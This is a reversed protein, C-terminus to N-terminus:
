VAQLGDLIVSMKQLGEPWGQLAFACAEDMSLTNCFAVSGTESEREGWTSPERATKILAEISDLEIIQTPM